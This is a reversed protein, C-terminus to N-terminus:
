VKKINNVFLNKKIFYLGEKTIMWKYSAFGSRIYSKLIYFGGKQDLLSEKYIKKVLRSNSDVGCYTAYEGLAEEFGKCEQATVLKRMIAKEIYEMGPINVSRLYEERIEDEEKNKLEDSCVQTFQEPFIRYAILADDLAEVVGVILMQLILHYDEAFVYKEYKIHNDLMAKKRIMFSSHPMCRNYFMLSFKLEQADHIDPKDIKKIKGDVLQDMWSGLLVVDMHADMYAIQKSFREPYCLDDHDLRAIYEGKAISIGYNLNYCQGKNNENDIFRIRADDFSQIVEASRDKSCDNIIIFEWDEFTQDLVSQITQGIYQECNYVSTVVSIRCM